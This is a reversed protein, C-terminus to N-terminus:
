RTRAIKPPVKPVERCTGQAGDPRGVAATLMVRRSIATPWRRGGAAGGPRHDTDVVAGCGGPRLGNRQCPFTCNNCRPLADTRRPGLREMPTWVPRRPGAAVLGCVGLQGHFVGHILARCVVMSNRSPLPVLLVQDVQSLLQVGVFFPEPAPPPRDEFILFRSPRLTARAALGACRKYSSFRAPSVDHELGALPRSCTSQPAIRKAVIVCGPSPGGHLHACCGPPPRYSRGCRAGGEEGAASDSHAPASFLPVSAACRITKGPISLSIRTSVAPSECRRGRGSRALRCQVSSRALPRAVRLLSQVPQQGGEARRALAPSPISTRHACIPTSKSPYAPLRLLCYRQSVKKGQTAPFVANTPGRGRFSLTRRVSASPLQHAFVVETRFLDAVAASGSSNGAAQRLLLIRFIRGSSEPWRSAERFGRRDSARRGPSRPDQPAAACRRGADRASAWAPRSYRTADIRRSLRCWRRGKRRDLDRDPSRGATRRLRARPQRREFVGPFGARQRSYRPASSATSRLLWPSATSRV